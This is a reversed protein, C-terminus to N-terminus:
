VRLPLGDAQMYSPLPAMVTIPQKGAYLPVTVASAHLMLQDDATGYLKDGVIPWGMAACHVRLQHTRGTQPSLQLLSKGNRSALLTYHTECPVGSGHPAVQMHWRAKHEFKKELPLDIVGGPKDPKGEVIALYTKQIRGAAFLKSLSALAHRNRGLILCGSTDRDLRHALAPPRPLGFQLHHFHQELTDGGGTGKHVPIGAPKNIVLMLADRFLLRSEISLTEM